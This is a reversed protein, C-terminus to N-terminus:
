MVEYDDLTIEIKIQYEKMVGFKVSFYALNYLTSSFMSKYISETDFYYDNPMKFKSYDYTDELLVKVNWKNNVKKGTIKTNASHIAFYLDKNKFHLNVNEGEAIFESENIHEKVIEKIKEKFQSDNKIEEIVKGDIITLNEPNEELSHQLFDASIDFEVYKGGVEIVTQWFAYQMAKFSNKEYQNQDKKMHFAFSCNAIILKVTEENDFKGNKLQEISKKFKEVKKFLDYAEKLKIKSSTILEEFKNTKNVNQIDVNIGEKIEEFDGYPIRELYKYTLYRDTLWIKQNNNLATLKARKMINNYLYAEKNKKKPMSLDLLEYINKICGNGFTTNSKKMDRKCLLCEHM